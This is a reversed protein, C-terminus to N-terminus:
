SPCVSVNPRNWLSYLHPDLSRRSGFSSERISLISFLLWFELSKFLTKGYLDTSNALQTPLSESSPEIVDPHPLLTTLIGEEDEEEAGKLKEQPLPIPRIFFFGVIMPISTGLALLLLFSSTDGPFVTHAITSFFFASLGFGSIVLGTTSARQGFPILNM